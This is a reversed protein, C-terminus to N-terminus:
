KRIEPSLFSRPPKDFKEVLRRTHFRLEVDELPPQQPNRVPWESMM